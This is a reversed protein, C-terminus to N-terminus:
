AGSRQARAAAYLCIAAAAAVNLSEAAGYLPVALLEDCAAREAPSLGRAEHGFVWATPEHLRAASFVDRRSHADAGVLRLGAARAAAAAAEFSVGTVVPLHFLSGASARVVKPNTVEVGGRCVVVVDAGAADAIRLLTGANGPDSVEPLLVALRAGRLAAVGPSVPLSAVALIGQADPSMAEAVEPTVEHVWLGARRASALPGREREAVAPTTYVDRVLSPAHALLERVAQPGEVLFQDHRQRASRRSLGAVYRVRTARPNALIDLREPM